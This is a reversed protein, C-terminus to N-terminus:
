MVQWFFFKNLNLVVDIWSSRPVDRGSLLLINLSHYPCTLPYLFQSQISTGSAMNSGGWCRFCYYNHTIVCQILVNILRCYYLFLSVTSFSIPLPLEETWFFSLKCICFFHHYILFAACQLWNNHYDTALPYSSRWHISFEDMSIHKPFLIHCLKM